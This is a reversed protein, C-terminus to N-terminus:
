KEKASLSVKSIGSLRIQDMIDIVLGTSALEDAVVVVSSEPNESHASEMLIRVMELEIPGKNMWIQDNPSVAILINGREARRATEAEPRSPDIGTEKIFSTTVIFFILMIFVIDMMPTINIESDEEIRKRRRLM